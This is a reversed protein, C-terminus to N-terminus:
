KSNPHIRTRSAIPKLSAIYLELFSQLREDVRLVVIGEGPQGYVVYSGPKSSIAAPVVLLDEEGEILIFGSVNDEYFFEQVEQSISSRKNALVANPKVGRLILADYSGRRTSADFVVLGPKTNSALLTEAVMDGVAILPPSLYKELIIPPIERGKLLVGKPEALEERHHEDIYLDPM